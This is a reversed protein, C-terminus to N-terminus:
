SNKLGAVLTYVQEAEEYSLKTYDFEKLWGVMCKRKNEQIVQRGREETYPELYLSTRGYGSSRHYEYGNSKFREKKGDGYEIDLLGPALIYITCALILFELYVYAHYLLSMSFSSRM